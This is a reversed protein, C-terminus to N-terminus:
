LRDEGTFSLIWSGSGSWLGSFRVENMWSLRDDGWLLFFGAPHISYGTTVVYHGPAKGLGPYKLLVISPSGAELEGRLDSLTGEGQRVKVGRRRAELYLDMTLTGGAGPSYIRGAIEVPDAEEGLYELVAALAYPGCLSPEQEYPTVGYLRVAEPFREPSTLRASCADLHPILAILLLVPIRNRRRM